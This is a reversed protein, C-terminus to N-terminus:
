QPFRAVGEPSLRQMMLSGDSGDPLRPWVIVFDGDSEEAVIPSPEYDDNASIAVGDAGWLQDGAPSVKYAFVDLDNGDRADTSVLVANGQSDAILDWDVLSSLQTHDSVLIGNHEWSEVGASDLLQLYVDYNGSALDFWSVYCGGDHTGAIKPVVQEAPRDAIALNLAPDAPWRAIAAGGLTLGILLLMPFSYMRSIM